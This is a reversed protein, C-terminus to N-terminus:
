AMFGTIIGLGIIVLKDNLVGVITISIREIVEILGRVLFTVFVTAIDGKV